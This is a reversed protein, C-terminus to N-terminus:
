SSGDGVEQRLIMTPPGGDLDDIGPDIRAAHGRIVHLRQREPEEVGDDCHPFISIWWAFILLGFFACVQDWADMTAMM